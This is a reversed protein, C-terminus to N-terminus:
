AGCVTVQAMAAGRCGVLFDLDAGQDAQLVREVYLSQYGGAMAPKPPAWRAKRRGLWYIPQRCSPCPVADDPQTGEIWVVNECAPCYLQMM